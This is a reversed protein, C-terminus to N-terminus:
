PNFDRGGLLELFINEKKRVQLKLEFYYTLLENQLM